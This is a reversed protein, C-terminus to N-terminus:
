IQHFFRIENALNKIRNLSLEITTQLKSGDQMRFYLHIGGSKRHRSSLTRETTSFNRPAHRNDWAKVMAMM